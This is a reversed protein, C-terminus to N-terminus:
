GAIHISLSLPKASQVLSRASSRSENVILWTDPSVFGIEYLTLVFMNIYMNNMTKLRNRM